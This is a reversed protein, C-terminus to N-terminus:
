RNSGRYIRWSYLLSMLAMKDVDMYPTEVGVFWPESWPM